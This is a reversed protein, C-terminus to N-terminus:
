RYGWSQSQLTTQLINVSESSPFILDLFSGYGITIFTLSDFISQIPFKRSILDNNGRNSQFFEILVLVALVAISSSLELLYPNNEIVDEILPM